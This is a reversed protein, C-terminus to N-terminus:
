FSDTWSDFNLGEGFVALEGWRFFPDNLFVIAREKQPSRYKKEAFSSNFRQTFPAEAFFFTEGM